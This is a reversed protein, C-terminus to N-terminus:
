RRVANQLRAHFGIMHAELEAVSMDWTIHTRAFTFQASRQSFGGGVNLFACEFGASRAMSVERAGMTAPNGFPYAFAWIATGLAHELAAKSEVVERLCEDDDCQSLVPHSMTHAGIAMGSKAMQRVENVNMLGWRRASTERGGSCKSRLVQMANDRVHARLRSASNVASWWSAHFGGRGDPVSGDASLLRLDEDRLDGSRMLHYLEEYWLMGPHDSCSAGTIFFLGRIDEAQFIPLMDHLDNVLGDDCTVLVARSPLSEGGRIWKQFVDPGVVDYNMKLFRLQKSLNEISVLNGDLFRDHSEYGPPIVGHYNVVACGGPTAIRKLWGGHHMVPYVIKKLLPSVFRM